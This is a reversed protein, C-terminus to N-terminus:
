GVTQQAASVAAAKTLLGANYATIYTLVRGCPLMINQGAAVDGSLGNIAQMIDVGNTPQGHAAAISALTDRPKVTYTNCCDPASQLMKRGGTAVASPNVPTSLGAQIASPLATPARAMVAQQPSLLLINQFATLPAQASPNQKKGAAMALQVPNQIGKNRLTKISADTTTVDGDQLDLPVSDAQATQLAFLEGLDVVVETGVAVGEGIAGGGVAESAAAGAAEGVALAEESERQLRKEVARSRHGWNTLAEM